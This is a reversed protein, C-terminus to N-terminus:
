GWYRGCFRVDVSAEYAATGMLLRSTTVTRHNPTGCGSMTGSEVLLPLFTPLFRRPWVAARPFKKGQYWQDASNFPRVAASLRVNEILHLPVAAHM